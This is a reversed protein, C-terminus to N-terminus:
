YMTCTAELRVCYRSMYLSLRTARRVVRAVASNFSADIGQLGPPVNVELKAFDLADDSVLLFSNHYADSRACDEQAVIASM